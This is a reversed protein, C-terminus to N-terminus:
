LLSVEMIKAPCM